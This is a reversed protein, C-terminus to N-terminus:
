KKNSAKLISEPIVEISELVKNEDKLLVEQEYYEARYNSDITEAELLEELFAIYDTCKKGKFGKVEAEIEGDPRLRIEIKRKLM